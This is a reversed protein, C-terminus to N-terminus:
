RQILEEGSIRVRTHRRHRFSPNSAPPGFSRSCATSCPLSADPSFRVALAAVEAGANRAAMRRPM